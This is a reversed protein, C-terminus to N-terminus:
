DQKEAEALRTEFAQVYADYVKLVVRAPNFELRRENAKYSKHMIANRREIAKVCQSLLDPSPRESDRMLMYPTIQCLTHFGEERLFTNLLARRQPETLHHLVNKMAMNVFAAHVGELAAVAFLLAEINHASMSESRARFALEYFFLGSQKAIQQSVEDKLRVLRDQPLNHMPGSLSIGKSIIWKGKVTFLEDVEGHSFAYSQPCILIGQLSITDFFEFPSMMHLPHGGRVDNIIKAYAAVFQNIAEMARFEGHSGISPVNGDKESWSRLLQMDEESLSVQATILLVQSWLEEVTKVRPMGEMGENIHLPNRVYLDIPGQWDFHYEEQTGVRLRFPLKIVHAMRVQDTELKSLDVDGYVEMATLM